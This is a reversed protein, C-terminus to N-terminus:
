AVEEASRGTEFTQLMVGFRTVFNGFQAVNAANQSAAAQQAAAAQQFAAANRAMMESTQQNLTEQTTRLFQEAENLQEQAITNVTEAFTAFTEAQEIQAEKSLNDFIQRELELLRAVASSIQEPDVLTRLEGELADREAIRAAQLEEATLISERFYAATTESLSGIQEGIAQIAIALEYASAKNEAMAQSLETAAAASGDFNAILGAITWTGENHAVWLSRTAEEQAEVVSTYDRIAQNVTNISSSQELAVVAASFEFTQAITGEFGSILDHLVPSLNTAKELVMEMARELLEVGTNFRTTDGSRAEPEGLLLGKEGHATVKFNATSGGIISSFSLLADTIDDVITRLEKTHKENRSTVDGTAFDIINTERPAKHTSGFLAQSLQQFGSDKIGQPNGHITNIADAVFDGLKPFFDNFRDAYKVDFYNGSAVDGPGYLGSQIDNIQNNIGVAAFGYGLSAASSIGTGAATGTTAGSAGLGTSGTVGAGLGVTGASGAGLGVTGTTGAGLGSSLASAAAGGGILSGLGGSVYDWVAGLNNLFGGGSGSGGSLGTISDWIGGGNSGGGFLGTISDWIGGLSASTNGFLGSSGDGFNFWSAIDKLIPQTIVQHALEALLSKFADKLGDAFDSFSDFAGKWADAFATDIREAAQTMAEAWPDVAKEAERAAEASARMEENADFLAGTLEHVREREEQTANASLERQAILIARDRESLDLMRLELELEGIYEATAFQLNHQEEALRRTAEEAREEAAVLKDLEAHGKNFAETAKLHREELHGTEFALRNIATHGAEFQANAEAHREKLEQINKAASEFSFGAEEIAAGYDEMKPLARQIAAETEEIEKRIEIIRAAARPNDRGELWELKDQLNVLQETLRPFDGEAAGHISAALEEALFRSLGAMNSVTKAAAGSATVLAAALDTISAKFAPDAVLDRLEEVGEIIQSTDVQGLADNIDNTLAQMSRGITVPMENFEDNIGDATRKLANFVQEGTLQGAKGMERLRGITTGLGEAIARALRPSNEMVSNLEEGRLTGSAIGQSLQLMASAAEQASAGSVIFSQNIAETVTFLEDQSVNLEETARSLRAYLNVTADTSQGTRNALDLNRSYVANLEEQSDTVLKLQGQLSAYSDAAQITESVLKGIGLVGIVTGLGHFSSTARTVAKNATNFAGGLKQTITTSNRQAGTLKELETRTLNLSKVANRSDGRILLTTQYTKDVM